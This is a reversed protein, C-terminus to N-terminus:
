RLSGARGPTRGAGRITKRNSRQVAAHFRPDSTVVEVPDKGRPTNVIDGNIVVTFEPSLMERTDSASHVRTGSPMHALEPGREGVLAVGGRAFAGMFPMDRLVKFANESVSTRLNAQRLLEALDESRQTDPAPDTVKATQGLERMRM